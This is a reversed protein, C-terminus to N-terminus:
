GWREADETLRQKATEVAEDKTAFVDYHVEDMTSRYVTRREDCDLMIIVTLTGDPTDRIVETFGEREVVRIM